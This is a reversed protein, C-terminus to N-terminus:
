RIIQARMLSLTQAFLAPPSPVVLGMTASTIAAVQAVNAAGGFSDQLTGTPTMNQANLIYTAPLIVDMVSVDADTPHEWFGEDPYVLYYGEFQPDFWLYYQVWSSSSHDKTRQWTSTWVEASWQALLSGMPINSQEM